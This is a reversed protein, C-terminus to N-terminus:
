NALIKARVESPTADFRLRFARNFSSIDSFGADYAIAAITFRALDRKHLLRFALDLRTGRLFDSFTSGESEFLRQIYRPTVGQRKAVANIHLDPDHQRELIDQKILKLRAAAIGTDNREAGGRVFDDLALASLDLVHRSVVEQAKETTPPNKLLMSVYDAFLRSQPTVRPVIYTPEVDVRPALRALVQRDLSIAQLRASKGKWFKFPRAQNIFLLDGAKIKIPEGGDVEMEHDESHMTLLYNDRGDQTLDRTRAGSMAPYLAHGVTVSCPLTMAELDMAINDRDVPHLHLGGVQRAVFEHVFALRAPHQMGQTSLRQMPFSGVTM